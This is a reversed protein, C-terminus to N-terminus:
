VSSFKNDHHKLKTLMNINCSDEDLTVTFIRSMLFNFENSRNITLDHKSEM